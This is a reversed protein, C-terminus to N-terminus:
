WADPFFYILSEKCYIINFAILLTLFTYFIYFQVSLVRLNTIM